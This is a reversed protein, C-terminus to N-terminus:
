LGGPAGAAAAAAVHLPRQRQWQLKPEDEGDVLLGQLADRLEEARAKVADAAVVPPLLKSKARDEEVRDQALGIFRDQADAEWQVPPPERWGPDSHAGAEALGRTVEILLNSIDVRSQPAQMTCADVLRRLRALSLGESAETASGGGGTPRSAARWYATRAM